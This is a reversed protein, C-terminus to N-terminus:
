ERLTKDAEDRLRMVLRQQDRYLVNIENKRGSKAAIESPMHLAHFHLYKPDGTLFDM